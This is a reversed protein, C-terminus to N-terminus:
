REVGKSTHALKDVSMNLGQLQRQAESIKLNLGAVTQKNDM